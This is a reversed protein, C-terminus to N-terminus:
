LMSMGPITGNAASQITQFVSRDNLMRASAGKVKGFCGHLIVSSEHGGRVRTPRHATARHCSGCCLRLPRPRTADHAECAPVALLWRRGRCVTRYQEHMGDIESVPVAGTSAKGLPRDFRGTLEGEDHRDRRRRFTRESMELIEAAELQSLKRARVRDQVSEFEAIRLDQLWRRRGMGGQAFPLTMFRVSRTGCLGTIDDALLVRLVSTHVNHL